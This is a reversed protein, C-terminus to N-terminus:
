VYYLYVNLVCSPLSHCKIEFNDHYLTFYIHIMLFSSQLFLPATSDM